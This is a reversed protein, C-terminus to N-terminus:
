QKARPITNKSPKGLQSDDQLCELSKVNLEEQDKSDM